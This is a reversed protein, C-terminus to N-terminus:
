GSVQSYMGFCPSLQHPKDSCQGVCRHKVQRVPGKGLDIDLPRM